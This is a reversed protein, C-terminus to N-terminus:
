GQAVEPSVYAMIDSLSTEFGLERLETIVKDVVDLDVKRTENNAIRNLTTQHVGISNALQSITPVKKRLPLPKIFEAEALRELYSKLTVVM